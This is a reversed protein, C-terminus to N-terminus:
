SSKEGANLFIFGDDEEEDQITPLPLRGEELLGGVVGGKHPILAKWSGKPNDGRERRRGGGGGRWGEWRGGRLPDEEENGEGEGGGVVM